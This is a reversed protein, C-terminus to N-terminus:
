LSAAAGSFEKHNGQDTATKMPLLLEDAFVPWSAFSHCHFQLANVKLTFTSRKFCGKSQLHKNAM